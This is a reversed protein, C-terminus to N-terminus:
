PRKEAARAEASSDGRSPTEVSEASAMGPPLLTADPAPLFVPVPESPSAPAVITRPAREKTGLAFLNPVLLVIIVLSLQRVM